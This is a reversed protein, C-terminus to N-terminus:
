AVHGYMYVDQKKSLRKWCHECRELFHKTEMLGGGIDKEKEPLLPPPPSVAIIRQIFQGAMNDATFGGDRPPLRDNGLGIDGLESVSNLSFAQRRSSQTQHPM